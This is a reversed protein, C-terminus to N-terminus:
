AAARGSSGSQRVTARGMTRERRILTLVKRRHKRAQDIPGDAEDPSTVVVFRGVRTSLEEM